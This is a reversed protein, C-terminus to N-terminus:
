QLQLLSAMVNYHTLYVPRAPSTRGQTWFILAVERRGDFAEPDTKVSDLESSRPSALEADSQLQSLTLQGPCASEECDIAVVFQFQFSLLGPLALPASVSVTPLALQLSEALEATDKSCFIVKVSLKQLQCRVDDDSFTAWHHGEARTRPM